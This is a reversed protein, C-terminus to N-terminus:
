GQRGANFDETRKWVELIQILGEVLRLNPSFIDVILVVRDEGAGNRASHEFTDDFLIGQGESWPVDVGDM